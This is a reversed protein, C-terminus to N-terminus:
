KNSNYLITDCQLANQTETFTCDCRNGSEFDFELTRELQVGRM